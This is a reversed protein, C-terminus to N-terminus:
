ICKSPHLFQFFLTCQMTCFPHYLYKMGMSYDMAKQQEQCQIIESIVQKNLLINKKQWCFDTFETTMVLIVVLLKCIVHVNLFIHILTCTTGLHFTLTVSIIYTLLSYQVIKFKLWSALDSPM